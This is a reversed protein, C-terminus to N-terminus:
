GVATIAEWDVAQQYAYAVRLLLPDALFNGVLQLSIPMGDVKGCPVAVAPHGTYNTPKTNYAIPMLMWNRRLNAEIAAMPDTPEQEVRPAINRVTPLALVDVKALARDFAAVYSPRVNHAKAYAGGHFNRRSLEAILHNLKTRPQMLDGHYRWMRDMATIISAPYYGKAGMGFFGVDYVARAGEFVLAAYVRDMQAHQPVSIRTVEAGLKELTAVAALVGDAVGQEIPEAFGEELIGIRLGKVGADLDSLADISEPIARRQRPDNDDYGAVAQLAAAVEPVTRAMPGVHDVSQEAAFGCGFHSVLGFTPKLGVVGCYAAPLRISGGQDGGFSVDVEGAALAAGSGSSSGGTIREVNHPNLPKGFDGMFGNMMHKGVVKGGAALVRTVVTADVDPIFGGLAQSTYVQPIGAVSIHDKFSVTKGALLGAGGGFSCKWLWAQYRDENLSPRYGPGREAFLLPPMAEEARSQVFADLDRMADFILPLYLEAEKESMRLNLSAALEVLETADPMAFM